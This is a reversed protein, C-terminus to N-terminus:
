TVFMQPLKQVLVRRTKFDLYPIQPLMSRDVRRGAELQKLVGGVVDQKWKRLPLPDSTHVVSYKELIPRTFMGDMNRESIVLERLQEHTYYHNDVLMADSALEIEEQKPNAAAKIQFLITLGDGGDLMLQDLKISVLVPQVRRADDITGEFFSLQDSSSLLPLQIVRTPFFFDRVPFEQSGLVLVSKPNKLNSYLHFINLRGDMVVAAKNRDDMDTLNLAAIVGGTKRGGVPAGRAIQHWSGDRARGYIGPERQSNSTEDKVVMLYPDVGSNMLIPYESNAYLVSVGILSFLSFKLYKHILGM